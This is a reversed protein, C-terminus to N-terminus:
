GRLSKGSAKPEERVIELTAFPPGTCKESFASFGDHEGARIIQGSGSAKAGWNQFEIVDLQGEAHGRQEVAGIKLHLRAVADAKNSAVTRALRGQHLDGGTQDLRLRALNETM